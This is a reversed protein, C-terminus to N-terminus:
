WPWTQVSGTTALVQPRRHTFTLSLAPIPARYRAPLGARPRQLGVAVSSRLVYPGSVATAACAICFSSKDQPQYQSQCDDNIVQVLISM